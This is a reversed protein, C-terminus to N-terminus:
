GFPSTWDLLPDYLKTYHISYSTIVHAAVITGEPSVLELTAKGGAPALLALGTWYGKGHAVHSFLVSLSGDPQLPLATM